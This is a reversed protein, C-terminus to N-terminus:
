QQKGGKLVATPSFISQASVQHIRGADDIVELTQTFDLMPNQAAFLRLTELSAVSKNATTYQEHQVDLWKSWDPSSTDTDTFAAHRISLAGGLRVANAAILWAVPRIEAFGRALDDAPSFVRTTYHELQLSRAIEPYDGLKTLVEIVAPLEKHRHLSRPSAVAARAEATVEGPPMRLFIAEAETTTTVRVWGWELGYSSTKWEPTNWALHLKGYAFLHTLATVVQFTYDALSTGRKGWPTKPEPKPPPVAVPAVAVRAPVAAPPAPAPPTPAPTAAKVEALAKAVADEVLAAIGPPMAREGPTPPPTTPNPAPSAPPAGWPASAAVAAAAAAAAPAAAPHGAGWAAPAVLAGRLPSPPAGRLPSPPAPAPLAPVPPAPPYAPVPAVAAAVVPKAPMISRVDIAGGFNNRVNVGSPYQAPAAQIMTRNADGFAPDSGDVRTPIERQPGGAAQLVMTIARVGGPGLQNTLYGRAATDTLARQVAAVGLEVTPPTGLSPVRYPKLLEYLKTFHAGAETAGALHLNQNVAAVIPEAVLAACAYSLVEV